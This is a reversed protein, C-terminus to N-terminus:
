KKVGRAKLIDGVLLAAPYTVEEETMAHVKLKEAVMLARENKEARAAEGLKITATRIQGHEALMGPMAARLSDTLAIIDLMAPDFEGRSLPGLLGLPPLALEEERQFHPDLVRALNRAAEGTKGTLKTAAVLEDHIEAHEARVSAPIPFRATVTVHGQPGQAAAPLAAVGACCLAAAVLLSKAHSYM